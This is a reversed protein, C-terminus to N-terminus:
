ETWGMIWDDNVQHLVDAGLELLFDRAAFQPVGFYNSGHAKQEIVVVPRCHILTELAGECVFLEFGEVDIKIFDVGDLEYSDLTRMPLGEAAERVFTEGSSGQTAVSAKVHGAERGLAVRHLTVNPDPVNRLFCDAYEAVPEFAHVAAFRQSLERSWLGIHGGIDVATGFKGVYELSKRRHVPQYEPRMKLYEVLHTEGDPLWWDGCRFM